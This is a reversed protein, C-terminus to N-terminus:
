DQQEIPDLIVPDGAHPFHTITAVYNLPEDPRIPVFWDVRDHSTFTFTDRTGSAPHDVTVETLPADDFHLRHPVITVRTERPIRVNVPIVGPGNRAVIEGDELDGNRYSITLRTTYDQKAPDRLRVTWVRLDEATKLTVVDNVRHDNDPDEYSLEVVAQVVDEWGAGVPLLRVEMVADFPQDIFITQSTTEQFDDDEITQGDLFMYRRRFQVPNRVVDGIEVDLTQSPEDATIIRTEEVPGIGHDVDEYRLDVQVAQLGLAAFDLAGRAITRVLRGPSPIAINLADRVQAVPTLAGFDQGRLKTAYRYSVDRESGILSPSFVQPEGDTFILTADEERTQGDFDRGRYNLQVQVAELDTGDFDAFVRVPMDLQEFLPNGLRLSRVFRAIDDPPRGAFFTQLTSQPNIQWTVITQQTLKLSVDMEASDFRERLYKKTNGNRRQRRREGAILEPPIDDDMGPFYAQSPDDTFFNQEILQQMMDLAYQRLEALVEDSVDASGPDIKVEIEGSVEAVATNIDSNQFDYTTCHDIGKGDLIKRTENYIRESDATVEINVPPLRAPFDLKYAVQIPTLDSGGDETLTQRMFESGAETLSMSFVGVNGAMLDPEGHAVQASVLHEVTPAYMIVTGKSYDPPAFEVNPPETTGQVGPSNREAETGVRRRAWEADVRPQMEARAAELETDTPAFTVDFNLYGAGDPLAPNEERDADSLAYQVLLFVPDGNQDERVRPHASAIYFRYFLGDDGWITAGDVTAVAPATLM